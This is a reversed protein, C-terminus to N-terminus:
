GATTTTVTPATTTSETTPTTTATTPATTPEDEDTPPLVPPLRTAPPSTPVSPSTAGSTAPEQAPERGPLTGTQRPEVTGARAPTPAESPSRTALIAALFGAASLVLVVAGLAAFSARRRTRRDPAALIGTVAESPLGSLAAVLAAGDQPRERPDKALVRGILAELREPVDDRFSSVPPAPERAHKTVLEIVSSAEFPLRGALMRFLIVGFAYVDSAPTAPEGRAQEPSLYAATGIISGTETLTSAGTLQAIGFDAIKTRGEDDFMINSPKLDRHVLGRAHAHAIGAALEEAIRSAEQIPLSGEETLRDELTGGSVYELVIHPRDGSEGYDYVRAVNPHACAAYARAEREFRARDADAALLKVAVRRDLEVDDALWVAAMGGGGLRSRLRYRGALVDGKRVM